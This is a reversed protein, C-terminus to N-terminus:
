RKSNKSPLVNSNKNLNQTRGKLPYSDQNPIQNSAKGVQSNLVQSSDFNLDQNAKELWLKNNKGM